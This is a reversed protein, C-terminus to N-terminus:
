RLGVFLHGRAELMSTNHIIEDMSYIILFDGKRSPYRADSVIVM